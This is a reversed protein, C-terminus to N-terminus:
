GPRLRGGRALPLASSEDHGTDGTPTHAPERDGGWRESGNPGSLGRPAETLKTQFTSATLSSEDHTGAHSYPEVRRGPGSNRLEASFAGQTGRGAFGPGAHLGPGRGASKRQMPLGPM